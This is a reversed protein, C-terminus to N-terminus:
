ISKYKAEEVTIIQFAVQICIFVTYQCEDAGISHTTDCVPM